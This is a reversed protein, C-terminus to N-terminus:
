FQGRAKEAQAAISAMSFMSISSFLLEFGLFLGLISMASAPFDAFILVALLVSIVGSVLMLWFLRTGRLHFASFIRAIGSILIISAVLLTLTLVGALPNAILSIGLLLAALGFIAMFMKHRGRDLQFVGVLALIGFMIFSWGSFFNVALTAPVPNLLAFFGGILAIIGGIIWWVHSKM